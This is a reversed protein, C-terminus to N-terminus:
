ECHSVDTSTEKNKEKEIKNEIRCQKEKSERIRGM